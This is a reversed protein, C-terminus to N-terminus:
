SSSTGSKTDNTRESSKVTQWQDDRRALAMIL